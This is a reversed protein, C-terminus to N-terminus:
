LYVKRAKQRAFTDVIDTFDIDRLIDSESSMICLNVLRKQTMTTRHDNKILKLKSFSREGSCNTIMLTLYIKLAISTNPFTDAVNNDYICQLMFQEISCDDEKHDMFIALFGQFQVLETAFNEDLDGDYIRALNNAALKIANSDMSPFNILFGFRQCVSDYAALRYKLCSLLKDVCQLFVSRCFVEKPSLDASETGSDDFSELRVNRRRTRRQEAAYEQSGLLLKGSEEFIDFEERLKQVFDVLSKLVAVASNLNLHPTQLTKSSANFRNLVSNWFSTFIGTDLTTMKRLLGRATNRCESKELVDDSIKQLMDKFTPYGSQLAQLADAHCSWRTDSLRKPVLFKNETDKFTDRLKQYRATSSTFFVYLSQVFDFFVTAKMCANAANRGVLNLSHGFCPVYLALENKECIKAQMGKYRGSMNSANDYSQSRCNKIDLGIEQIYKLFANSMEKGTHGTSELFTLFRETSKNDELYRFIVTLQDIHSNDETSDVSISFYKAAKIRKIVTELVRKGIIDILEECITTSLFSISGRGQNAKDELHQKLFPDYEAILEILGLYNGNKASGIFQDSGRFALGREALFKIVSILRQLVLRWYQTTKEMEAELAKDVRENIRSFKTADIVARLHYASQEHSSIQKHAHKWTNYGENAFSCSSSKINGFLKCYFCYM